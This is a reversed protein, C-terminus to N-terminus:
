PKIKSRWWRRVKPSSRVRGMTRAVIWTPVPKTQKIKSGLRLKKALPKYRAM